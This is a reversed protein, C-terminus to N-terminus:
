ISFFSELGYFKVEDSLSLIFQEKDLQVTDSAEVELKGDFKVMSADKRADM